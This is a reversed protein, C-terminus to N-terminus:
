SQRSQRKRAYQYFGGSVMSAVWSAIFVREWVQLRHLDDRSHVRGLKDFYLDGVRHFPAAPFAYIGYAMVVVLLGFLLVSAFRLVTM